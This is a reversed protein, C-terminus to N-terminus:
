KLYSLEIDYPQSDLYPSADTPTAILIDEENGNQKNQHHNFAIMQLALETKSKCQALDWNLCFMILWDEATLNFHGRQIKRYIQQMNEEMKAEMEAKLEEKIKQRMIENPNLLEQFDEHTHAQAIDSASAIIRNSTDFSSMSSIKYIM